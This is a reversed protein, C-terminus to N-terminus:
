CSRAGQQKREDLQGGSTAVCMSRAILHGLRLAIPLGVILELAEGAQNILDM